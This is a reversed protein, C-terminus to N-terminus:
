VLLGRSLHRRRRTAAAAQGVGGSAAAGGDSGVKRRRPPSRRRASAARITNLYHCSHTDTSPLWGPPDILLETSDTNADACSPTASNRWPDRGALHRHPQGIPRQAARLPQEVLRVAAQVDGLAPDLFAGLHGLYTCADGGDGDDRRDPPLRRPSACAARPWDAAAAGAAAGSRGGRHFRRGGGSGLGVFGRGSASAARRRGRPQEIARLGSGSSASSSAWWTTSRSWPTLAGETTVVAIHSGSGHAAMAVAADRLNADSSITSMTRVAAKPIREHLRDAPSDVLDKVHCFGVFEGTTSQMPFRSFGSEAALEELEGITTEPNITVFDSTPQAVDGVTQATFELAGQVREHQAPRLLGRSGVRRHPRRGGGPHVGLGGRGKIPVRLLHLIGNSASNLMWILPRLPWVFWYLPPRAAVGSARAAFAVREEPDDRGGAHAPVRRHVARPRVVSCPAALGSGWRRSRARWCMRWPRSAWPVSAWRACPSAWSPAALMLSVQEMARLTVRATASGRQARPEIQTRRASIIAFEAGVFFGNALLLVVALLIGTYDSVDSERADAVVAVIRDVRRRRAPHGDPAGRPERARDCGDGLRGGAAHPGAARDVALGALTETALGEPLDVALAASVEDPRLRGALLWSGDARQLVEDRPLDQEDHIEGIIEEVLNELTVVGATGGYEDVVLAAALPDARLADMLADLELAEPVALVPHMITAVSTSAREPRPIRLADKFHVMGIVDDMGEGAVPFRAHGSSRSLRLLEAASQDAHAFVLRPRATM